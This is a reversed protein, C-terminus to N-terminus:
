ILKKRLTVSFAAGAAALALMFWLPADLPVAPGRMCAYVCQERDEFQPAPFAKACCDSCFEPPDATTKGNGDGPCKEAADGLQQFSGEIVSGSGYISVSGGVNDSSSYYESYSTTPLTVAFMVQATFLGLVVILFKLRKM